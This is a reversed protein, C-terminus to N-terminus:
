DFPGRAKGIWKEMVDKESILKKAGHKQASRISKCYEKYAEKLIAVEAKQEDIGANKLM